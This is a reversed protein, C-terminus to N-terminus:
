GASEPDPPAIARAVLMHGDRTRDQMQFNFERRLRHKAGHLRVAVNAISTGMVVAIDAHNLEEWLALRLLEQDTPRLRALAQLAELVDDADDADDDDAISISDTGVQTAQLRAHLRTARGAGRLHNALIRRAVGYLWLRQQHDDGPMVEFRRWAVTFTEAIVDEADAREATRRLAYGLLPRYNRDFLDRFRESPEMLLNM